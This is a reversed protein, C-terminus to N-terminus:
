QPWEPWGIEPATDLDIRMLAVRSHKYAAFDRILAM